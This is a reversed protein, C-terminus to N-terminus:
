SAICSREQRQLCCQEVLAGSSAEDVLEIDPSPPLLMRFGVRVVAHDGVLMVLIKATMARTEDRREQALM